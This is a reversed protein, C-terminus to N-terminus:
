TGEGGEGLDGGACLHLVFGPLEGVASVYGFVVPRGEEALGRGGVSREGVQMTHVPGAEATPEDRRPFILEITIL